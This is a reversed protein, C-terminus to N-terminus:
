VAAREHKINSQKQQYKERAIELLYDTAEQTQESRGAYIILDISRLAKFVQQNDLIESIESSTLEGFPLGTISEMYGKWLGVVRDAIGISPSDTLETTLKEWHKLFNAWRKRQKRELLYAQIKDAFFYYILGILLLLVGIVLSIIIWNIGKELPQYINNQQFALEEPISDLTLKLKLEAELPFNVLSDYKALEYVPLSLFSSPELEFNSLFYVASDLTVGEQTSSIFTQKELLVFPSYDYTSDPFILQSSEPYTAKLVYAVREGLKASDQM